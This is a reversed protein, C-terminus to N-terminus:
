AAGGRFARARAALALVTLSSAPMLAAALLPHVLGAIALTGMTLNYTLSVRLSRRVAALSARAGAVVDAVPALGPARLFVDAADISAEAGGRGGPDRHVAALAAADNVGDGVM